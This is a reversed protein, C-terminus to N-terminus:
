FAPLLLPIHEVAPKLACVFGTDDQIMCSFLIQFNYVFHIKMFFFFIVLQWQSQLHKCLHKEVLGIFSSRGQGPISRWSRQWGAWGECMCVCVYVGKRPLTKRARRMVEDHLAELVRWISNLVWRIRENDRCSKECINTSDANTLLSSCYKPM